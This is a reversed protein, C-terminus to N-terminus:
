EPCRKEEEKETPAQLAARVAAVLLAGIQHGEEEVENVHNRISRWGDRSIVLHDLCPLDVVVSAQVLAETMEIDADSPEPDGSPHNHAMVFLRAGMALVCRLVTAPDVTSMDVGGRSVMSCGIPRMRADLGVVWVEEHSLDRLHEFCEAAHAANAVTGPMARVPGERVLRVECQHVNIKETM